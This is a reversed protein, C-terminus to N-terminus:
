PNIPRDIYLKPLILTDVKAEIVMKGKRFYFLNARKLFNIMPDKSYITDYFLVSDQKCFKTPEHSSQLFETDIDYLYVAKKKYDFLKIYEKQHLSASLGPYLPGVLYGNPITREHFVKDIYLILYSNHVSTDRDVYCKISDVFEQKFSLKPSKTYTCSVMLLFTCYLYKKYKM